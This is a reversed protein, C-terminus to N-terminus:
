TLYIILLSVDEAQCIAEPFLSDINLYPTPFRSRQKYFSTIPFVSKNKQFWFDTLRHCIRSLKLNIAYSGDGERILMLCISSFGNMFDM